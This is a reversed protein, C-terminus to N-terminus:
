STQPFYIDFRQKNSMVQQNPERGALFDAHTPRKVVVRKQALELAPALLADADADDGVLAHFMQMDKKVASKQDRKHKGKPYMPDLYVVDVSACPEFATLTSGAFYLSGKLAAPAALTLRALADQLLAGVLPNREILAVKCGLAALVLADRALGATGDVIHLPQPSKGVGCARAIAENKVTARAARDAHKGSVLDIVLPQMSSQQAPPNLWRLSLGAASQELVFDDASM